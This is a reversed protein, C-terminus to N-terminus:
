ILDNNKNQMFVNGQSMRKSSLDAELKSLNLYEEKKEEDTDTAVDIVRLVSTFALLLLGWCQHWHGCYYGEVSLHAGVIIARLM